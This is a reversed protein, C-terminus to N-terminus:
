HKHKPLPKVVTKTTTQGGDPTTSINKTITGANKDVVADVSRDTTKGDVGTFQGQASYGTDTKHAVSEGSYSEGNFTTGNVTRTRTGADKDNVVTTTRTATEGAANTKTTTRTFGSATKQQQTQRTIAGQSHQTSKVTAEAQVNAISLLAMTMSAALLSKALVTKFM